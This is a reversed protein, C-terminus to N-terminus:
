ESQEQETGAISDLVYRVAYRILRCRNFGALQPLRDIADDMEDVTAKSLRLQLFHELDTKNTTPLM